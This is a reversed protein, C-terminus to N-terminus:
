RDPATHIPPRVATDGRSQHVESAHSGSYGAAALPAIVLSGVAILTLDAATHNLPQLQAIADKPQKM